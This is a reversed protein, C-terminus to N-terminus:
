ISGFVPPIDRVVSRLSHGEERLQRDLQLDDDDSSLVREILQKNEAFRDCYPNEASTWHKILRARAKGNKWLLRGYELRALDQYSAYKGLPNM